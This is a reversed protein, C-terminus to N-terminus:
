DEEVVGGADMFRKIALSYAINPVDSVVATLIKDFSEHDFINKRYYVCHYEKPVTFLGITRDGIRTTIGGNDVTNVYNIREPFLYMFTGNMQDKYKLGLTDFDNSYVKGTYTEVRRSEHSIYDRCDTYVFKININGNEELPYLYCNFEEYTNKVNCKYERADQMQVARALNETLLREDRTTKMLSYLESVYGKARDAGEIISNAIMTCEMLLVLKLSGLNFHDTIESLLDYSFRKSRATLDDLNGAYNMGHAIRYFLFMSKDLGSEDLAIVSLLLLLYLSQEYTDRSNMPHNRIRYLKAKSSVVNYDNSEATNVAFLESMEIATCNSNDNGFFSGDYDQTSYGGASYDTIFYNDGDSKAADSVGSVIESSRLSDIISDICNNITRRDPFENRNRFDLIDDSNICEKLKEITVGKDAYQKISILHSVLNALDEQTKLPYKLTMEDSIYDSNLKNWFSKTKMSNDFNIITM